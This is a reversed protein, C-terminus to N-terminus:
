GPVEGDYFAKPGALKGNELFAELAQVIKKSTDGGNYPSKVKQAHKAFAPTLAREVAKAVAEGDARCRLVNEGTVRGQQRTGIDVAPVGFSPTEVVGSSSNGVVVAARKMLSLYRLAGLSMVFEANPKDACFAQLIANLESGGADANAGTVLCFLQPHANLGAMLAAALQAPPTGGATEPHLTALAYPKPIKFGLQKEVEAHTYLPAKRINEDGLGGVNLVYDPQEGMRIIRRRYAECSPFHLKAMKTLCHRFWDDDAGLTVDGGSIHAVPIGLLAAAQGAALMEYRDGLALLAAPRNHGFWSLFQELAIATRRATGARGPPVPQSLIDLRAAVSFGDAEIEGVTHGHKQSLHAGTVLLVPELLSSKQMELLVPRLLGYEARTGTVVAVTYM